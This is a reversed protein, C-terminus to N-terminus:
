KMNFKEYTQEARKEFEALTEGPERILTGGGLIFAATPEEYAACIFIVSVKDQENTVRAEIKELRKKQKETM